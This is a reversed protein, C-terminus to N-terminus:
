IFNCFSCRYLSYGLHIRVHRACMVRKPHDYPSKVNCVKCFYTTKDNREMLGICNNIKKTIVDPLKIKEKLQDKMESTLYSGLSHHPITVYEVENSLETKNFANKSAEHAWPYAQHHEKESLKLSQVNLAHSTRKTPQMSNSSQLKDQANSEDLTKKKLNDQMYTISQKQQRLKRQKANNKLNTQNRAGLLLSHHYRNKMTLNMMTKNYQHQELHKRTNKSIVQHQTTRSSPSAAHSMKKLGKQNTKSDTFTLLTSSIGLKTLEDEINNEINPTTIEEPIGETLTNTLIVENTPKPM